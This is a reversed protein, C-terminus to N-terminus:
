AAERGTVWARFDSLAQRCEGDGVETLSYGAETTDIAEATLAARLRHIHTRMARVPKGEFMEALIHALVPPLGFVCAFSLETPTAIRRATFDANM